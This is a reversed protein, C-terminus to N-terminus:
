HPSVPYGLVGKDEGHEVVDHPVRVVPFVGIGEARLAKKVGVPSRKTMLSKQGEAYTARRGALPGPFRWQMPSDRALSSSKRMKVLSMWTVGKSWGAWSNVKSFHGPRGWGEGSGTAPNM